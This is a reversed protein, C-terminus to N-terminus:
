RGSAMFQQRIFDQREKLRRAVEPSFLVEARKVTNKMSVNSPQWAPIRGQVLAMADAKSVRSNRLTRIAETKTLGSTMAASILRIMEEYAEMRTKVSNEYADKLKDDSVKNPNRAVANFIGTADRKKDQFEFAKYYISSKPDFTSVRFGALAAMEDNLSFPRGSASVEGGVAKVIREFNSAAGPQFAKRLHGVIDVMQDDVPANPNFVRGGSDKKNNLVDMIAGFAIDQGFFPSFMERASDTIAEDAPQDRLMANIPRKWYNYPDLFSMDILRIQGDDSRGIPIINSNRQWPAALDRFAEEEDDTMGMLGMAVTQLAHIMGSAIALGAVKRRGLAPTDKLDQKVYRLIHYSTRIIEAPFSVFTGALPFRRLRQVFRGTMSYTPYTNRIREAAEKEAAAESLGKHKILLAKENEFGMIKWFDDGYQYFRQAYKNFDRLKTLPGKDFLSKELNSDALLDMMEGAYPTDYIVGLEKMKRLYGEKGEGYTFYQRISSVSNRIQAFNFHGNAMAFFSASMWNRMATTPSLVTKGYKVM